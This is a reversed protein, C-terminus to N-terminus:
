PNYLQFVDCSFGRFASRARLLGVLWLFTPSPLVLEGIAHQKEPSVRQLRTKPKHRTEEPSFHLNQTKVGFKDLISGAICV